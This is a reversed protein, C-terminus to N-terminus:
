RMNGRNREVSFARSWISATPRTAPEPRSKRSTRTKADTRTKAVATPRDSQTTERSPKTNRKPETRDQEDACSSSAPSSSLKWRLRSKVRTSKHVNRKQSISDRLRGTERHQRRRVKCTATTQPLEDQLSTRPQEADRQKARLQPSPETRYTTHSQSDIDLEHHKQSNNVQLHPWFIRPIRVNSFNIREDYRIGNHKLCSLYWRRRAGASVPHRM